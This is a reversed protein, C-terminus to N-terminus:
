KKNPWSTEWVQSWPVYEAKPTFRIAEKVGYPKLKLAFMPSDAWRHLWTGHHDEASFSYTGVLGKFNQIKELQDRVSAPDDGATEMARALLNVADWATITYDSPYFGPEHADAVSLFAKEEASQDQGVFALRSGVFYVDDAAADALELFKRLPTQADFVILVGPLLQKVQRVIIPPPTGGSFTVVFVADPKFSKIRLLQGTFDVDTIEFKEIQLETGDQDWVLKTWNNGAAVNDYLVGSQQIIAVKKANLHEALFHGTLLATGRAEPMTAFTFRQDPAPSPKVFILDGQITNIVPVKLENGVANLTQTSGLGTSGILAAVKDVTILKKALYSTKQPDGVDDEFILELRRGKIGGAKNIADAAWLAGAKEEVGAAIRPGTLALVVGVKLPSADSGAWSNSHLGGLLLAGSLLSTYFLKVIKM